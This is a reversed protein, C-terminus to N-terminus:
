SRTDNRREIWEIESLLYRPTDRGLISNLDEFIVTKETIERVEVHMCSIAGKLRIFWQEGVSGYENITMEEGEAGTLKLENTM